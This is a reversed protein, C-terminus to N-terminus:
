AIEEYENDVGEDEDSLFYRVGEEVMQRLGETANQESGFEFHKGNFVAAFTQGDVAKVVRNKNTGM